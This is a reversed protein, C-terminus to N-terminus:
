GRRADGSQLLGPRVLMGPPGLAIERGFAVDVEPDVADMDLGAKFRVGLAKQDDDAGGRLALLLEDAQDIAHALAHLGPPLQQEVEPPAPQGDSGLKGDGVACEAEPLGKLLHPGLRAALAAPHLVALTKFLSGFLRCAFALRASCSM